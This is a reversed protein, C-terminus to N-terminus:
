AADVWDELPDPTLHPRLPTLHNRGLVGKNVLVTRVVRESVHFHNAAASIDGDAPQETGVYAMLGEYPCLLSQAFARQFKQRASKSAAVPGLRENDSWVADGLARALEFRRDGSWRSLVIVRQRDGDEALRLGYPFRPLSTRAATKFNDRNTQLVTALAANPLPGTDYGCAQRLSAAATEALKWPARGDPGIPGIAKLAADFRCQVRASRAADIEKQLETAAQPGPLAMAAEEVGGDGFSSALRGLAEILSDPAEDPDFGLRAEMRRWAAIDPEGREAQLADLQASLAARDTKGLYGAAAKALFEDVTTECERASAYVLADTLFRVPGVVGPPDSRSLFGMREGEGWIALRPWAYGGGIASLEHALRWAAPIGATPVCEWRIRWWNDVLWFAFQGPPAMLYDDHEAERPRMLRTFAIDDARIAIARPADDKAGAEPRVEIQFSTM